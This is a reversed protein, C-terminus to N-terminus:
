AVRLGEGDAEGETRPLAPLDEGRMREVLLQEVLQSPTVRMKASYVRMRYNTQATLSLGVKILSLKASKKAARKAM